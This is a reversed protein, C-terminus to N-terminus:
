VLKIIRQTRARFFEEDLISLMRQKNNECDIVKLREILGQETIEDISFIKMGRQKSATYYANHKNVFVKAGTLLALGINGTGQQRKHNMIVVNSNKIINSYEQYPIFSLLPQFREGFTEKGKQLVQEVYQKSGAYSLPVIIKANEPLKERGLRMFIDLHNNNPSASNGVLINQTKIHSGLDSGVKQASGGYNWDIFEPHFLPNREKILDYESNLVPAFYDIYAFISAKNTPYVVEKIRQKLWKLVPRNQETQLNKLCELTLPEYLEDKSSLILDYYDFGWGIWVTKVRGRIRKIIEIAFNSLGHVIIMDFSLIWKILRPNHMSLINCRVVADNKVHKLSSRTNFSAVLCTNQGPAETEFRRIGVDIFKQDSAIHLYKKRMM